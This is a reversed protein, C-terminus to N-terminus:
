RTAGARSCSPQRSYSREVILDSHERRFTQAIHCNWCVPKHTRMVDLLNPLSIAGWELTTGQRNVLAPKHDILELEGFPRECFACTRDRYWKMLVSGVLCEPPAVAFQVLCEQGCDQKLPWRWCANLRVDTQGMISTLAARRADVEVMAQKGTEPCIVVGASSFHLYARLFRQGLFWATTVIVIGAVLYTLTIM